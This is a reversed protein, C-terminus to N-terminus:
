RRQEYIRIRRTGDRMAGTGCKDGMIQAAPVRMLFNQSWALLISWVGLKENGKAPREIDKM